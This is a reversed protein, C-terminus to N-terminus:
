KQFCGFESCKLRKSCSDIPSSSSENGKPALSLGLKEPAIKAALNLSHLMFAVAVNGKDYKECYYSPDTDSRQSSCLKEVSTSFM